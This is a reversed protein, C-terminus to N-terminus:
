GQRLRPLVRDRAPRPLRVQRHQGTSRPRRLPSYLALGLDNAALVDLRGNLVFAPVGTMSDLIRQVTPRVRQGAPRRRPPRTSRAPPPARRAPDGMREPAAPQMPPTVPSSVTAAPLCFGAGGLGLCLFLVSMLSFITQNM